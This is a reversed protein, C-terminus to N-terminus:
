RGRLILRYAEPPPHTTTQRKDNTAHVLTLLVQICQLISHLIPYSM